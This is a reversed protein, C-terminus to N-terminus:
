PASGELRERIGLLETLEDVEEPTLYENAIKELEDLERQTVGNEMIQSWQQLADTPIKQMILTLIRMKENEDLENQLREWEEVSFVIEERKADAGQQLSNRGGWVPVADEEGRPSVGGGREAGDGDGDTESVDALGTGTENMGDGAAPSGTEGGAGPERSAQGGASRAGDSTDLGSLFQAAVDRWDIRAVASDAPIQKLVNDIMAQVIYWTTIVTLGSVLLVVFALKALWKFLKM